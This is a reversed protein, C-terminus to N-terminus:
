RYMELRRGLPRKRYRASSFRAARRRVHRVPNYQRRAAAAPATSAQHYFIRKGFEILVLYGLVMAVLAAFFAAPLPSFGLTRALPTAPLLSGVTVVTFAALILPLSPRSRFFPIRRTRIAFIVLTQTALSEVFWGSRFEAAGANFVWLMVGFTVFDFLSSLPGFFVM